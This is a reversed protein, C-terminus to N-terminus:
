RQTLVTLLSGPIGGGAWLLALLKRHMSRGCGHSSCCQQECFCKACNSTRKAPGANAVHALVPVQAALSGVAAEVGEANVPQLCKGHFRSISEQPFMNSSWESSSCSSLSLIITIM